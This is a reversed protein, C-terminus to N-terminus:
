IIFKTKNWLIYHELVGQEQLEKKIELAINENGIGLIIYDYNLKSIMYPPDVELGMDRYKLYNRDMWAVLISEQDKLIHQYYAQGIKGAGYLIVRCNKLRGYYPYYIFSYNDGIGLISPVDYKFVRRWYNNLEPLLFSKYSHREVLKCLFQYYLHLTNLYEDRHNLSTTSNENVCNHYGIDNKVNVIDAKELLMMFTICYDEYFILNDPIFDIVEQMKSTRYTNCWLVPYVNEDEASFLHRWIYKIEEGKYIGTHICPYHIPTQEERETYYGSLVVDADAICEMRSGLCDEEIWDDSDVFTIYEGMASKIGLKRARCVGMHGQGTLITIRDDRKQYEQCLELTKDTSGDNVIIIEINNYTQRIVSEMCREIYKESNFVPIIISCVKKEM